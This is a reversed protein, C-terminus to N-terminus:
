LNVEMSKYMGDLTDTDQPMDVALGDGTTYMQAAYRLAKKARVRTAYVGMTYWNVYEDSSYGADVRVEYKGNHRTIYMRMGTCDVLTEGNQSLIMM